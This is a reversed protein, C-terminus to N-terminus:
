HPIFYSLAFISVALCANPAIPLHVMMLRRSIRRQVLTNPQVLCADSVIFIAMCNYMASMRPGSSPYQKELHCPRTVQHVSFALRLRWVMSTRHTPACCSGRQTLLRLSTTPLLPHLLTLQNNSNPSLLTSCPLRHPIVFCRRTLCTADKSYLM